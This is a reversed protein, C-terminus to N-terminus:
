EYLLYKERMTKYESLAPEWSQRIQKETLGQKVQKRLESNGMLKDFFNNKLFFTNKDSKRYMTLLYGLNLQKNKVIEAGAKQLDIGYCTKGNHLPNNSVGKIPKPVFSFSKDSYTPSGIIEFPTPTGRGVSVTTGEFCCLSPYLLIANDTQLNPSPAVPLHYLSDHTYNLVKIVSLQCQVGNKLWKEGNIMQAYEGITMGHVVPVPHMGVFSRYATDLVPGDVYFGNPNPRDLVLLPVGNEACAEMVYHLTSIYTYFRAGVDQIDFVVIDIGKLQKPQPKKNAGFLSIIPIGTQPDTGDNIRAGAEAQGRFGHEPCFIAAVSIDCRILTDLLHTTGVLSSQNGVLGVKKGELLPLYKETQEAGVTINQAPVPQSNCGLVLFLAPALFFTKIRTTKTFIM